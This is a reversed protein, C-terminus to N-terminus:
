DPVQIDFTTHDADVRAPFEYPRFLPKADADEASSPAAELGGVVFKVAGPPAGRGRDESTDFRGAKIVAMGRQGQNGHTTDPHIMVVGNEVPKGRYTVAGRVHIPEGQTPGCGALLACALAIGVLPPLRTADQLRPKFMDIA